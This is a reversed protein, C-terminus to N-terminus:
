GSALVTQAGDTAAIRVLKDAGPDAVLASGAREIAIRRPRRARRREHPDGAHRGLRHASPAPPLRRAPRRRAMFGSREIAIGVSRHVVRGAAGNTQGFSTGNVHIIWGGATPGWPDAVLLEGGAAVAVATPDGVPPRPSDDDRRDRTEVRTLAGATFVPRFVARTRTPSWCAATPSSPSAPRRANFDSSSSVGRDARGHGPRRPDVAARDADSIVLSGNPRSRSAPRTQSCAPQETADHSRRNRQRHCVAPTGASSSTVGAPRGAGVRGAALLAALAAALVASRAAPCPGARMPREADPRFGRFGSEVSPPATRSCRLWAALASSRRRRRARRGVHRAVDALVHSAAFAAAYFAVLAAARAAGASRAGACRAGARRRAALSAGGLPRVGTAERSPSASRRALRRRRALDARRERYATLRDCRGARSSCRSSSCCGPSASRSRASPCRTPSSSAPWAAAPRWSASRRARRARPRERLRAPALRGVLAVPVIALLSTAEADLHSSGSSRARARPRVAVRRGRRAPRRVVGALSGSSRDAGIM